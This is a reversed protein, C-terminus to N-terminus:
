GEKVYGSAQRSAQPVLDVDAIVPGVVRGGWEIGM